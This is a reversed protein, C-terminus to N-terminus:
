KRFMFYVTGSMCRAAWQYNLRVPENMYIRAFTMFLNSILLLAITKAIVPM